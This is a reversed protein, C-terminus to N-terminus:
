VKVDHIVIELEKLEIEKQAAQERLIECSANFADVMLHTGEGNNRAVSLRQLNEIQGFAM